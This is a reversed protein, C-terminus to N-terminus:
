VCNLSVATKNQKTHTESHRRKSCQSMSQGSRQNKGDGEETNAKNALPFALCSLRWWSTLILPTKFIQGSVKKVIM